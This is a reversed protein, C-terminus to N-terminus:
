IKQRPVSNQAGLDTTHDGSMINRPRRFFGKLLAQIADSDGSEFIAVMRQLSDTFADLGTSADPVLPPTFTSVLKVLGSDVQALCRDVDKTIEIMRETNVQAATLRELMYDRDFEKM